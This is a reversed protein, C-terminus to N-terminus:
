DGVRPPTAPQGGVGQETQSENPDAREDNPGSSNRKMIEALSGPTPESPRRTVTSLDLEISPREGFQRRMKQGSGPDVIITSPSTFGISWGEELSIEAVKHTTSTVKQPGHQNESRSLVQGEHYEIRGDTERIDIFRNEDLEYIGPRTVVEPYQPMASTKTGGFPLFLVLLVALAAILIAITLKRRM